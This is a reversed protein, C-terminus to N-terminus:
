PPPHDEKRGGSTSSSTSAEAAQMINGDLTISGSTWDIKPNEQALWEQGLVIDVSALDCVLLDLQTNYQDGISLHAARAREDSSYFTGNAFRFITKKEDNLRQLNLFKSIRISVMNRTAGSDILVRVKRMSGNKTKIWGEYIMRKGQLKVLCCFESSDPDDPHNPGTRESRQQAQKRQTDHQTGAQHATPQSAPTPVPARSYPSEKLSDESNESDEEVSFVKGRGKGKSSTFKKGRQKSGTDKKKSSTGAHAGGGPQRCEFKRHGLRGCNWCGEEKGAAAANVDMPAATDAHSHPGGQTGGLEAFREATRRLTAMTTCNAAAVHTFITRNTALGALFYRMRELEPVPEVGVVLAKDFAKIYRGMDGSYKIARFRLEREAPMEQKAFLDNFIAYVQENTRPLQPGLQLLAAYADLAAGELARALAQFKQEAPLDDVQVKVATLWTTYSDGENRFKPLQPRAWGTRGQARLEALAQDSQARGALLEALAQDRERIAGHLAQLQQQMDAYAAQHDM